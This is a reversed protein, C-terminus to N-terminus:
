EQPNTELHDFNHQETQKLIRFLYWEYSLVLQKNM